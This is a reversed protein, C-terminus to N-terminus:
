LVLVGNRISVAVLILLLIFILAIFFCFINIVIEQNEKETRPKTFFNYKRDAAARDPTERSPLAPLEESAGSRDIRCFDLWWEIENSVQYLFQRM